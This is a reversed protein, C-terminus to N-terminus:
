QNRGVLDGIQAIRVVQVSKIETTVEPHVKVVLDAVTPIQVHGWHYFVLEIGIGVTRAIETRIVEAQVRTQVIFELARLAIKREKKREFQVITLKCGSSHM